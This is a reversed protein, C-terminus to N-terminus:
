LEKFNLAHNTLANVNYCPFVYTYKPQPNRPEFGVFLDIGSILALFHIFIRGFDISGGFGLGGFHKRPVNRRPFCKWVGWITISHHFVELLDKLGESM